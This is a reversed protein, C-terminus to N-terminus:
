SNTNWISHKGIKHKERIKRDIHDFISVNGSPRVSKRVHRIQSNERSTKSSEGSNYTDRRPEKMETDISEDKLIRKVYLNGIKKASFMSKDKIRQMENPLFFKPPLLYSGEETFIMTYGNKAVQGVSMLSHACSPVHRVNALLLKPTLRLVGKTDSAVGHRGDFGTIRIKKTLTKEKLQHQQGTISVSAGSDILIDGPLIKDAMATAVSDSQTNRSTFVCGIRLHDDEEQNDINKNLKRGKRRDTNRSYKSTAAAAVHSSSQSDRREIEETSEEHESMNDNGDSTSVAIDSEDTSGSATRMMKNTKRIWWLQLQEEIEAVTKPHDHGKNMILTKVMDLEKPLRRMIDHATYEEKYDPWCPVLQKGQSNLERYETLFVDPHDHGNYYLDALKTMISQLRYNSRQIYHDQLLLLLGYANYEGKATLGLITPLHYESPTDRMKNSIVSEIGHPIASNIYSSITQHTEVYGRERTFLPLHLNTDSFLKWSEAPEATLIGNYKPLQSVNNILKRKWELFVEPQVGALPLEKLLPLKSTGSVDMVYTIQSNSHGSPISTITPPTMVPAASAANSGNDNSGNISSVIATSSLPTASTLTQNASLPLATSLVTTSSNDRNGRGIVSASAVTTKPTSFMNATQSNSDTKSDDATEANRHSFTDATYDGQSKKIHKEGSYLRNPNINNLLSPSQRGSLAALIADLKHDMTNIRMNHEALQTTVRDSGSTISNSINNSGHLISESDGLEEISGNIIDDNRDYESRDRESV